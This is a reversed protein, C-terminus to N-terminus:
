GKAEQALKRLYTIQAESEVAKTCHEERIFAIAQNVDLLMGSAILISVLATGTRGHGGICCVVVRSGPDICSLLGQWFKLGVGAPPPQMDAWHLRIVEPTSILENLISFKKNKSEIFTKPSSVVGALDLVLDALGLDLGRSNAAGISTGDPLTFVVSGDHDCLPAVAASYGGGKSPKPKSDSEVWTVPVSKGGATVISERGTRPPTGGHIYFIGACHRCLGSEHEDAYVLKLKCGCCTVPEGTRRSLGAAESWHTMKKRAKRKPKPKAKPKAM